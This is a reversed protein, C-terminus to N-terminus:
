HLLTNLIEHHKISILGLVVVLIGITWFILAVTRFSTLLFDSFVNSLTVLLAEWFTEGNDEEMGWFIWGLLIFFLGFAILIFAGTVTIM